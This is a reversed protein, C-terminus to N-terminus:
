QVSRRRRHDSGDHRRVREQVGQAGADEGLEKIFENELQGMQYWNSSDPVNKGEAFGTQLKARNEPTGYKAYWEADTKATAPAAATGTDEFPGYNAGEVDYRKAPDFYPEYGHTDLDRQITNRADAFEEVQPLKKKSLFYGPQADMALAEEMSSYPVEPGPKLLYKGPNNPDPLKTM